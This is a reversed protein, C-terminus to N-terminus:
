SDYTYQFNATSRLRHVPRHKPASTIASHFTFDSLLSNAGRFFPSFTNSKLLFEERRKENTTPVEYSSFIFWPTSNKESRRIVSRDVNKLPTRVRAPLPPSPNLIQGRDLTCFGKKRSSFSLTTPGLNGSNKSTKTFHFAKLPHPEGREVTQFIKRKKSTQHILCHFM